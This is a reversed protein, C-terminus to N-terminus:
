HSSVAERCTECAPLISGGMPFSVAKGCFTQRGARPAAHSEPDGEVEAIFWTPKPQGDM